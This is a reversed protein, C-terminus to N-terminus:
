IDSVSEIEYRKIKTPETLFRPLAARFEAMHPTKFHKALDDGSEWQEFLHILGDDELDASFTYSICGAEQHTAKMMKLIAAIAEDRLEPNIRAQGAVVIM